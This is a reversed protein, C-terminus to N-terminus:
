GAEVSCFQSTYVVGVEKRSIQLMLALLLLVIDFPLLKDIDMGFEFIASCRLELLVQVEGLEGQSARGCVYAV